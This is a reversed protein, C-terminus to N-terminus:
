KEVLSALVYHDLVYKISRLYSSRINVLFLEFSKHPYDNEEQWWYFLCVFLFPSPLEEDASYVCCGNLSSFYCGLEWWPLNRKRGLKKSMGIVLKLIDKSSPARWAFGREEKLNLTGSTREEDHCDTSIKKWKKMCYQNLMYETGLRWGLISSAASPFIM